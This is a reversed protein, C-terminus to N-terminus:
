ALTAHARLSPDVCRADGGGAAGGSQSAEHRLVIIQKNQDAVQARLGGCEEFLAADVCPLAPLLATL